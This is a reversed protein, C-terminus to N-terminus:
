WDIDFLIHDGFKKRNRNRRVKKRAWKRAVQISVGKNKHYKIALRDIQRKEKSKESVM